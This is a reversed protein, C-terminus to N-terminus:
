KRYKKKRYIVKIEEEDKYFYKLIMYLHWKYLCKM